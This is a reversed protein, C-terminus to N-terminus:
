QRAPAPSDIPGASEGSALNSSFSSRSLFRSLDALGDSSGLGSVAANRGEVAAIDNLDGVTFDCLSFAKFFMFGIQLSNPVSEGKGM